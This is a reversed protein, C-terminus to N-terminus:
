HNRAASINDNLLDLFMEEGSNKPPLVLSFWEGNKNQVTIMRNPASSENENMRIEEVDKYQASFYEPGDSDIWYSIVREVTLVSGYDTISSTSETYFLQVPEESRIIKNEILENSQSATLEQGSVVGAPPFTGSDIILGLGILFTVLISFTGISIYAIPGATRYNSDKSKRIGQLKIAGMVGRIFATGFIILWIFQRAIAPSYEALLEPTAKPSFIVPLIFALKLILFTALLLIAPIVTKKAKLWIAFTLLIAPDSLAIAYASISSGAGLLAFLRIALNILVLIIAAMFAQNIQSLAGQETDSLVDNDSILGSKM